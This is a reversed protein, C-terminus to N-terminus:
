KKKWIEDGKAVVFFTGCLFAGVVALLTGAAWSKWAVTFIQTPTALIVIFANSSTGQGIASCQCYFTSFLESFQVVSIVLVFATNLVAVADGMLRVWRFRSLLVEATYTFTSLMGYLLYSGSLCGLGIV